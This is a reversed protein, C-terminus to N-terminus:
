RGTKGKMLIIKRHAHFTCLHFYPITEGPQLFPSSSIGYPKPKNGLDKMQPSMTFLTYVM